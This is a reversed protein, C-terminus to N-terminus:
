PKGNINGVPFGRINLVSVEALYFTSKTLAHIFM